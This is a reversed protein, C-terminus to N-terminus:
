PLGTPPLRYGQSVHGSIWCLLRYIESNSAFGAKRGLEMATPPKPIHDSVPVYFFQREAGGPARNPFPLCWVRRLSLDDRFAVNQGPGLSLVPCLANGNAEEALEEEGRRAM